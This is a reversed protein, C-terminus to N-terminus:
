DCGGGDSGSCDGNTGGDGDNGYSTSTRIRERRRFWSDIGCCAVVFFLVAVMALNQGSM